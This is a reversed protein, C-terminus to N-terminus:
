FLKKFYPSNKQYFNKINNAKSNQEKLHKELIWINLILLPCKFQMVLSIYIIIVCYTVYIKVYFLIMVVQSYKNEPFTLKKIEIQCTKKKQFLTTPPVWFILDRLFKHRGTAHSSQPLTPTQAKLGCSHFATLLQLESIVIRHVRLLAWGQVKCIMFM